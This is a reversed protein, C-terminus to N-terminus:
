IRGSKRYRSPGMSTGSNMERQMQREDDVCDSRARESPTVLRDRGIKDQLYVQLLQTVHLVLVFGTVRPDPYALAAILVALGANQLGTCLAVSRRASPSKGGALYGSVLAIETFVIFMGVHVTSIDSMVDAYQWVLMTLLGAALANVSFNIGRELRRGPAPLLRAVLLGAFLPLVAVLLLQKALRLSDVSAFPPLDAWELALHLILPASVPAIVSFLLVIVVALHGDLRAGTAIASVVPAVPSCALIIMALSFPESPRFLTILALALVPMVCLNLALAIFIPRWNKISAFLGDVNCCRGANFLLIAILLAAINASLSM